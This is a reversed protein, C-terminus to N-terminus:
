AHIESKDLLQIKFEQHYYSCTLTSKKNPALIANTIILM